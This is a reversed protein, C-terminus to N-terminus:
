RISRVREFLTLEHVQNILESGDASRKFDLIDAVEEPDVM